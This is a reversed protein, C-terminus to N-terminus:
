ADKRHEEFSIINPNDYGNKELEEMDYGNEEVDYMIKDLNEPDTIEDSKDTLSKEQM